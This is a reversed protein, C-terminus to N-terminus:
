LDTVILSWDVQCNMVTSARKMSKFLTCQTDLSIIQGTETTVGKAQRMLRVRGQWTCLSKFYIVIKQEFLLFYLLFINGIHYVIYM